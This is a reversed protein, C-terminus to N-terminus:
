NIKSRNIENSFVEILQKAEELGNCFIFGKYNGNVNNRTEVICKRINNNKLEIKNQFNVNNQEHSINLNVKKLNYKFCTELFIKAKHYNYNYYKKPYKVSEDVRIMGAFHMVADFNNNKLLESVSYKDAIDCIKLKAKKPILKKNGTILNDIITVKYGKDLLLNVVHSGIYGAGGTVLIHNVRKKM